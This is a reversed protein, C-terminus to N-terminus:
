GHDYLSFKPDLWLLYFVDGNRFGVMPAKGHFRMALLTTDGTVCAPKGPRIAHQEIKETGLGHRPANRIESWTMSSLRCVTEILAIKEEAECIGLGWAPNLYEFSFIPKDSPNRPVPHAPVKIHNSAKLAPPKLHKKGSV